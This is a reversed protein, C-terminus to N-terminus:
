EKAASKTRGHLTSAQTLRKLLSCASISRYISAFYICIGVLNNFDIHQAWNYLTTQLCLLEATGDDMGKLITEWKNMITKTAKDVKAAHASSTKLSAVLYNSQQMLWAASSVYLVYTVHDENSMKFIVVLPVLIEIHCCIIEVCLPYLSYWHPNTEQCTCTCKYTMIKFSYQGPIVRVTTM